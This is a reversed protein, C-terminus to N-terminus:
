RDNKRQVLKVPSKNPGLTSMSPHCLVQGWRYEIVPGDMKYRTATGVSSQRDQCKDSNFQTRYVEKLLLIGTSKLQPKGRRHPSSETRRPYSAADTSQQIRANQPLRNHEEPAKRGKNLFFIRPRSVDTDSKGNICRRISSVPM